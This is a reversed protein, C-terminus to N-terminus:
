GGRGPDLTQEYMKVKQTRKPNSSPRPPRFLMSLALASTFEQGDGRTIEWLTQSLGLLWPAEGALSLDLRTPTRTGPGAHGVACNEVTLPPIDRPPDRIRRPNQPSLRAPARRQPANTTLFLHTRSRNPATDAPTSRSARKLLGTLHLRRTPSRSALPSSAGVATLVPGAQPREDEAWIMRRSM